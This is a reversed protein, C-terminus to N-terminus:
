GASVSLARSLDRVWLSMTKGQRNKVYEVTSVLNEKTWLYKTSGHRSWYKRFESHNNGSKRIARTAYAKFDSMMKEPTEKGSVIIHIHNSRVHVTHAVWGRHGCVQLIAKLVVERFNRGLIVPPNKLRTQEKKHLGSNPSVFNSGYQNHGKDVSGREDGRLWSGYTTFTIHYALPYKMKNKGVSGRGDPLPLM